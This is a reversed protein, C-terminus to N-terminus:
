KSEKPKLLEAWESESYCKGYADTRSCTAPQPTVAGQSSTDGVIYRLSPLNMASQQEIGKIILWGFILFCLLGPATGSFVLRAKAGSTASVKFAGDAGIIFLSFGIAALAFAGGFCALVLGQKNAILKVFAVIHMSRAALDYRADGPLGAGGGTTMWATFPQMDSADLKLSQGTKFAFYWAAALNMVAIFAGLGLIWLRAKESLGAYTSDSM